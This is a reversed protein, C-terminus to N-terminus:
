CSPRPMEEHPPRRCSSEFAAAGPGAARRRRLRREPESLETPADSYREAHFGAIQKFGATAAARTRPVTVIMLWILEITSACVQVQLRLSDSNELNKTGTTSEAKKDSTFCSRQWCPSSPACAQGLGAAAAGAGALGPNHTFYFGSGSSHGTRILTELGSGRWRVGRMLLSTVRVLPLFM